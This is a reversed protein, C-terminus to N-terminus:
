RNLLTNFIDKTLDESPTHGNKVYKTSMGFISWSIMMSHLELKESTWAPYEQKLLTKFAKGLEEKVITEIKTTFAEYSRSCQNALGSQLSILSLLIDNLAETTLSEHSTVDKLVGQLVDESLMTDMLDYKDFFHYYFTARNVTARQTIDKITIDKFEKEVVLKMFADMILKRTRLFRPDLSKEM